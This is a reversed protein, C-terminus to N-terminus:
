NNEGLYKGSVVSGGVAILMALGWFLTLAPVSLNVTALAEAGVYNGLFVSDVLSASSMALLGAIEPISYHWFVASVKGKVPDYKLTDHSM